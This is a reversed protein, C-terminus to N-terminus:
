RVEYCSIFRLINPHQLMKLISCEHQFMGENQPDHRDLKKLAYMQKPNKKDKVLWVEGSAGRGLMKVRDFHEWINDVQNEVPVMSNSTACGMTEPHPTPKIGLRTDATFAPSARFRDISEGGGGSPRAVVRWWRCM